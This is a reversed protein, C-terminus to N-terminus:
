SDTYYLYSSSLHDAFDVVEGSRVAQIGLAVTVGSRWGVDVGGRPQTGSRVSDLFALCTRAVPDGISEEPIVIPSGVGRYPMDGSTELSATTRFDGRFEGEPVASDTRIPEYFFTGDELTLEVTGGTGYVIIQYGQKHNGIISSFFLQRGGPYTFITQVNDFTERGDKYFIVGGSGVVREPIAGFIWNATDIQHSGLEALLGGSYEHYLRWNILRELGPEPLPRRWNYNRHWFAHVHTVDGIEGERIRRVADEYWLAYRYQLGTLFIGKSRRSAAEIADCDAVTIALAKEGYVNLDRDLCAIVHEAHMSPPTAVIIGDLGLDTDLLERYDKFAPTEEGTIDQGELHRPEYIDCIGGFRVDPLRMFMRM